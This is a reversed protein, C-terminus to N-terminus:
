HTYYQDQDRKYLPLMWGVRFGYQLDIRSQDIPGRSPFDYSRLSSTFAQSFEFGAFFNLLRNGSQLHYGVFQQLQFGGCMRDYGKEYDGMLQPVTNEQVDFGVWHMLYGGGVTVIFGSNPNPAIFRHSFVKGVNANLVMGKQSVNIVAPNGDKGIIIGSTTLLPKFITSLEKVEDGFLYYGQLGFIWNSRTKYSVGGGINHALGFRNALDGGPLQVAYSFQIIASALSTDRPNQAKARFSIALLALAFVIRNVATM